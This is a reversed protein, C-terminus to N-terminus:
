DCIDFVVDWTSTQLLRVTRPGDPSPAVQFVLYRGDVPGSVYTTFGMTDDYKSFTQRLDPYAAILDDESSGLRIGAPTSPSDPLPSSAVGRTHFEAYTLVPDDVPTARADAQTLAVSVDVSNEDQDRFLYFGSPCDIPSPNPQLGAAEAFPAIPDGVLLSGAQSYDIIWTGPDLPDVVPEPPTVPASAEPSPTATPTSPPAQTPTVTAVPAPPGDFPNPILGTALAAGGGGIVLLSLLAITIGLTRRRVTAWQQRAVASEPADQLAATMVSSRMTVLLRALEDGAPPDTRM